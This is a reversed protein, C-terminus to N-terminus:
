AAMALAELKELPFFQILRLRWLHGHLSRRLALRCSQAADEIIVLNNAHAIALHRDMDPSALWSTYPCIARTNPTIAAELLPSRSQFHRSEIDVFVAQRWTPSQFRRHSYFSFPTTIVEDGQGIGASLLSLILADTGLRLGVAFKSGLKPCSGEELLKVEPGLIFHQSEFVQAVAQM